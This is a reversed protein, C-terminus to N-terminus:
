FRELHDLTLTLPGSDKGCLMPVPRSKIVSPGSTDGTPFLHAELEYRLGELCLLEATGKAGTKAFETYVDDLVANVFAEKVVSGDPALVRVAVRGIRPPPPLRFVVGTRQEGVRVRLTAAKSPSSSNPYYSVPYPVSSSPPDRGYSLRVATDPVGM